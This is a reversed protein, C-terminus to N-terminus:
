KEGKLEEFYVETMYDAVCEAISDYHGDMTKKVWFYRVEETMNSIMMEAITGARIHFKKVYNNLQRTPSDPARSNRKPVFKPIIGRQRANYITRTVGDRSRGLKKAIEQTTYGEKFLNITKYRLTDTKNLADPNTEKNRHVKIGYAVTSHDRGLLRSIEAISMGGEHCLHMLEQRAEAVNIQRSRGVLEEPTINYKNATELILEKHDAVKRM